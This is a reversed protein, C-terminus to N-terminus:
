SPLRLTRSALLPSSDSKRLCSLRPTKTELLDFTPVHWRWRGVSGQLRHTGGVAIGAGRWSGVLM